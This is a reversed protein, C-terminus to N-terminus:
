HRLLENWSDLFTDCEVPPLELRPLIGVAYMVRGMEYHQLIRSFSGPDVFSDPYGCFDLRNKMEEQPWPWVWVFFEYFM